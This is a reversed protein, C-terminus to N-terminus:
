KKLKHVRGPIETEYGNLFEKNKTLKENMNKIM